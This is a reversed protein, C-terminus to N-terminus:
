NLDNLLYLHFMIYFTGMFPKPSVLLVTGAEKCGKLSAGSLLSAKFRNVLRAEAETLFNLIM